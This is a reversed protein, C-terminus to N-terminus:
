KDTGVVDRFAQEFLLDLARASNKPSKEASEKKQSDNKPTNQNAM